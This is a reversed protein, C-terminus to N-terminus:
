NHFHHSDGFSGSNRSRVEDSTTVFFGSILCHIIQGKQMPLTFDPEPFETIADPGDCITGTFIFEEPLNESIHIPQDPGLYEVTIAFVVNGNEPLGITPVSVCGTLDFPALSTDPADPIPDEALPPQQCLGKRVYVQAQAPSFSLSVFALTGALLLGNARSCIMKLM